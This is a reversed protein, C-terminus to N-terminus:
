INKRNPWYVKKPCELCNLQYIGSNNYINNNTTTSLKPQLIHEITNCTKYAININADKFLKSITKIEHGV